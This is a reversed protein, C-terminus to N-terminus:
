LAFSLLLMVLCLLWFLSHMFLILSTSCAYVVSIVGFCLFSASVCVCAVLVARSYNVVFVVDYYVFVRSLLYSLARSVAKLLLWGLRFVSCTVCSAVFVLVVCGNLKHDHTLPHACDRSRKEFNRSLSDRIHM